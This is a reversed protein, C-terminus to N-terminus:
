SFIFARRFILHHIVGVRTRTVRKKGRGRQRGGFAGDFLFLRIEVEEKQRITVGFLSLLSSPSRVRRTEKSRGRTRQGTVCVRVSPNCESMWSATLLRSEREM